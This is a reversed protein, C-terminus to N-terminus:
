NINSRSNLNYAISTLILSILKTILLIWALGLSGYYKTFFYSSIILFLDRPLSVILFLHWMRKHAVLVNSISGTVIDLLLTFSLICLINYGNQYESGYLSLIYKGLIFIMLIEGLVIFILFSLSNKFLRGFFQKNNTNTFLYSSVVTNILSPVIAALTILSNSVNFFAVEKFSNTHANLFRLALYIAPMSLLGIFFNPLIYNTLNVSRKVLTRKISGIPIEKIIYRLLLLFYLLSSIFIGFIAGNWSYYLSLSYTLFLYTVGYIVSAVCLKRYALLGQLIGTYLNNFSTTITIFCIIMLGFRGLPINLVENELFNNFALALILLVGGGWLLLKNFYIVIDVLGNQNRTKYESVFRNAISMLGLGCITILTNIFSLILSYKGFIEVNFVRAILIGSFFTSGQSFLITLFFYFINRYIGLSYLNNTRLLKKAFQSYKM